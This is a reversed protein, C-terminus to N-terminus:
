IHFVAQKEKAARLSNISKGCFVVGRLCDEYVATLVAAYQLQVIDDANELAKNIGIVVGAQGAVTILLIDDGGVPGITFIHEVGKLALKGQSKKVSLFVAGVKGSVMEPTHGEVVAEALIKGYNGVLGGGNCVAAKHLFLYGLGSKAVIEGQAEDGRRVGDKFIDVGQHGAVVNLCLKNVDFNLDAIHAVPIDVTAALTHYM